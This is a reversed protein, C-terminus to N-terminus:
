TGFRFVERQTGNPQRVVVAWVGPRIWSLRVVSGDARRVQRGVLHFRDVRESRGGEFDWHGVEHYGSGPEFRDVAFSDHGPAAFRPPRLYVSRDDPRTPPLTLLDTTTDRAADYLRVVPGATTDTIFVAGDNAALIAFDCGHPDWMVGDGGFPARLGAAVEKWQNSGPRLVRLAASNEGKVLGFLAQHDRDEEGFSFATRGGPPVAMPFDHVVTRVFTAQDPYVLGRFVVPNERIVSARLWPLERAAGDIRWMRSRGNPNAFYVLQRKVDLNEAPGSVLEKVKGGANVDVVRVQDGDAFGVRVASGLWIWEAIRGGPRYSALLAGRPSRIEVSDRTPWLLDAGPFLPMDRRLVALRGAALWAIELTGGRAIVGTTSGSDVALLHVRSHWPANEPGETLALHRGDPSLMESRLSAPQRHLIVAYGAGLCIPLALLLTAALAVNRTQVRLLAVEGRRYAFLSVAFLATVLLLLALAALGAPWHTGSRIAGSWLDPGSQSKLGRDFYAVVPAVIMFIATGTFLALGAVAGAYVGVPHRVIVGFCVGAAFLVVAAAAFIVPLPGSDFLRSGLSPRLIFFGAATILLAAASSAVLLLWQRTRSIPLAHMFVIHQEKFARSFPATGVPLAVLLMLSAAIGELLDGIQKSDFRGAGLRALSSGLVFMFFIGYSVVLLPFLTRKLHLLLLPWDANAARENM